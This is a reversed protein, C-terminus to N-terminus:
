TAKGSATVGYEVLKLGVSKFFALFCSRVRYDSHAMSHTVLKQHMM